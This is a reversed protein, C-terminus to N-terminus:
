KNEKKKKLFIDELDNVVTLLPLQTLFDYTQEIGVFNTIMVVEVIIFSISRDVVWDGINAWAM